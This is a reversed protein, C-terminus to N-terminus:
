SVTSGAAVASTILMPRPQSVAHDSMPPADARWTPHGAAVPQYQSGTQRQYCQRGQGAGAVAAAHQGCSGDAELLVPQLSDMDAVFAETLRLLAHPFRMIERNQEAPCRARAEKTASESM